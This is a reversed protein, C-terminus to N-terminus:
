VSAFHALIYITVFMYSVSLSQCCFASQVNIKQGRTYCDLRCGVCDRSLLVNAKM